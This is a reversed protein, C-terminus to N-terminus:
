WARVPVAREGGDCGRAAERGGARCRGRSAPRLIHKAFLLTVVLANVGVALAAKWGFHSLMFASDWGWKASVMLVPPAAFSTLTGGISVNVFLVGITAYKVREPLPANFVRDRLMLAALTM